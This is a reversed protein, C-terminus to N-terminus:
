LDARIRDVEDSLFMVYCVESSFCRVSSESANNLAKAALAELAEYEHEYLKLLCIHEKYPELGSIAKNEHDLSNVTRRIVAGRYKEQVVTIWKTNEKRFNHDVVKNVASILGEDQKGHSMRHLAQRSEAKRELLLKKDELKAQTLERIMVELEENTHRDNKFGPLGAVKGIHWLDQTHM